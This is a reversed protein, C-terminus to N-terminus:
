NERKSPHEIKNTREELHGPPGKVSRDLASRIKSANEVMIGVYERQEGSLEGALGDVLISGFQHICTLSNRLGHLLDGPLKAAGDSELQPAQESEALLRKREIAYQVTQILSDCHCGKLVYDQAGLRLAEAAKSTEGENVLAIAPLGRAIKLAKTVSEPASADPLSLNLLILDFQPYQRLADLGESLTARRTVCFEEARGTDVSPLMPVTETADILLVRVTNM